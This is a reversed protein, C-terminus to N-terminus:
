EVCPRLTAFGCLFTGSKRSQAIFETVLRNFVLWKRTVEFGAVGLTLNMDTKKIYALPKGIEEYKRRM